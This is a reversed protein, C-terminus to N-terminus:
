PMYYPHWFVADGPLFLMSEGLNNHSPRISGVEYDSKSIGSDTEVAMDTKGDTAGDNAVWLGHGSHKHNRHAQFTLDQTDAQLSKLHAAILSQASEKRSHGAELMHRIAASPEADM